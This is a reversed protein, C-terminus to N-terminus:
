ENLRESRLLQALQRRLDSARECLGDRYGSDLDGFGASHEPDSCISEVVTYLNSILLQEVRRLDIWYTGDIISQNFSEVLAHTSGYAAELCRGIGEFIWSAATWVQDDSLRICAM